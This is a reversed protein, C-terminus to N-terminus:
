RLEGAAPDLRRGLAPPDEAFPGRESFRVDDEIYHAIPAATSGLGPRDASAMAHSVDLGTSRTGATAVARPLNLEGLGGTRLRYFVDMHRALSADEDPWGREQYV